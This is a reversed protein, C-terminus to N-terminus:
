SKPGGEPTDGGSAPSANLTNVIYEAYRHDHTSAILAPQHGRSTEFIGFLGEQEIWKASFRGHEGAAQGSARLAAAAERFLANIEDDMWPDPGADLRALLAPLDQTPTM